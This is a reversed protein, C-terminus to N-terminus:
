SGLKLGNIFTERYLQLAGSINEHPNDIALARKTYDIAVKKWMALIYIATVFYLIGLIMYIWVWDREFLKNFFVSYEYVLYWSFGSLVLLSFLVLTGDWGVHTCYSMKIDHLSIATNAQRRNRKKKKKKNSQDTTTVNPLEVTVNKKKNNNNIDVAQLPNKTSKKLDNM